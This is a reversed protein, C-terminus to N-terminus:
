RCSMSSTRMLDIHVRRTLRPDAPRMADRYHTSEVWRLTM